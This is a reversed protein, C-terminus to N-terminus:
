GAQGMDRWVPNSKMDELWKARDAADDAVAAKARSATTEPVAILPEQGCKVQAVIAEWLAEGMAGAPKEADKFETKKWLMLDVRGHGGVLDVRLEKPLQKVGKGRLLTRTQKRISMALALTLLVQKPTRPPEMVLAKLRNIEYENAGRNQCLMGFEELLITIMEEGCNKWDPIEGEAVLVGIVDKISQAKELPKGDVLVQFWGDQSWDDPQETRMGNVRVGKLKGDVSARMKSQKSRLRGQWGVAGIAKGANEGHKGAGIKLEAVAKQNREGNEDLLDEPKWEVERRVGMKRKGGTFAKDIEKDTADLVNLSRRVLEYYTPSPILGEMYLANIEVLEESEKGCSPYSVHKGIGIKVKSELGGGGTMDGGGSQKVGIAGEVWVDIEHIAKNCCTLSIKGFRNFHHGKECRYTMKGVRGAEERMVAEGYSCGWREELRSKLCEGMLRKIKDGVLEKHWKEGDWIGGLACMMSHGDSVMKFMQRGSETEIGSEWVSKEGLIVVGDVIKRPEPTTIFLWFLEDPSHLEHFALRSIKEAWKELKDMHSGLVNANVIKM